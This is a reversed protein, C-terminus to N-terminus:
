ADVGTHKLIDEYMNRFMKKYTSKYDVMAVGNSYNEAIEIDFPIQLHISINERNCYEFVKEDGLDSRNIVVGFPMKLVKLLDVALKLDHLGFPTPETVLVVYDSGILSEVVACSTGPPADIIVTREKDIHEKVKRIVPPAMPEGINLMGSVFEIRDKTGKEIVGVHRSTETIAKEPCFYECVGCSHCLESVICTTSGFVALANYQCLEACKGCYSCKSEDIEPVLMNVDITDSIEPKLFLACNPEEVDCDLLQVNDLSLALNVAVTTKGTGGKGSAISLIM